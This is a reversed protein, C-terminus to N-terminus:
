GSSSQDGPRLRIRGDDHVIDFRDLRLSPDDLCDGTQLDYRQKHLPSAVTPISNTESPEDGSPREISGVLGRAMVPAGTAPDVHGIAFWEEPGDPETPSLRFLAVAVPEAGDFSVLVAVGRDVPVAAAGCVDVWGDAPRGNRDSVRSGTRTTNTALYRSPCGTM